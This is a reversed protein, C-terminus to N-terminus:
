ATPLMGNVGTSSGKGERGLKWVALAFSGCCLLIFIGTVQMLGQWDISPGLTLDRLCNIVHTFPNISVALKLSGSLSDMPFLATSIFFVSLVIVNMVTEYIVENPLSLSIAYCLGSMFLASLFILPLMLLLGTFGSAIQGSLLLALLLLIAIEIFSLLVAELIQGLVISSRKVPSILIRYFSGRSKMIFNLYGGSSCCSLTVLVMIGPLLFAIYSGDAMGSLSQQAMTSYLVLWILPQIITLIISIPNQFRWKMNRWLINVTDM